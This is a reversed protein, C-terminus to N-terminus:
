SGKGLYEIIDPDPLLDIEVVTLYFSDDLLDLRIV